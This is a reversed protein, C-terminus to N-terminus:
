QIAWTDDPTLNHKLAYLIASDSDGHYILNGHDCQFQHTFDSFEIYSCIAVGHTLVFNHLLLIDPPYGNLVTIATDWKDGLWRTLWVEQLAPNVLIKVPRDDRLLERKLQNFIDM